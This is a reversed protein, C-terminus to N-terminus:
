CRGGAKQGSGVVRVRVNATGARLMGLSDAAQRSVDIVRGHVFPGRDNVRVTVGRGNRLNEVCLKTGFAHTRHAASYTHMDFREGSATKHGHLGPGYWSAKGSQTKADTTEPMGACGALVLALFSLIARWSIRIM